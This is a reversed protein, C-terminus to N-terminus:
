TSPQAPEPKRPRVASRAQGVIDRVEAVSIVRLGLAAVGYAVIGVAIQVGLPGDRVALVSVVMVGAAVLLRGVRVAMRLDMVGPSRMILAGILVWLETAVTVIAAGIAGNGYREDTINIAIVCAIPNLAAAV